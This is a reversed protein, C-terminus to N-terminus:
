LKPSDAFGETICKRWEWHFSHIFCVRSQCLTPAMDWSFTLKSGAVMCALIAQIVAAKIPDESWANWILIASQHSGNQVVVIDDTSLLPKPLSM